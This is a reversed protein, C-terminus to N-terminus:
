PLDHFVYKKNKDLSAVYNGFGMKLLTNHIPVQRRSGQNKLTKDPANDNIDIYQIGDQQRIDTIHLQAIERIRAGTFLSVMAIWFYGPKTNRLQQYESNFLLAELEAKAYPQYSESDVEPIMTKLGKFPNHKILLEDHAFSTLSKIQDSYSNKTKAKLGSEVNNQLHKKFEILHRSELDGILINGHTNEFLAVVRRALGAKKFQGENSAKQNIWEEVLWNLTKGKGAKTANSESLLANPIISSTAEMPRNTAMVPMLETEGRRLSDFYRSYHVALEKNKCLAAVKEKTKLSQIIEKKGVLSRLDRPVIQRFYYGTPRRQLLTYNGM